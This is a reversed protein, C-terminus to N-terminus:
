GLDVEEIDSSLKTTKTESFLPLGTLVLANELTPRTEDWATVFTHSEISWRSILFDM